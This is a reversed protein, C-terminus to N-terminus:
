CIVIASFIFLIKLIASIFYSSFGISSWRQPDATRDSTMFLLQGSHTWFFELGCTTLQNLLHRRQQLMGSVGVCVGSNFQKCTCVCYYTETNVCQFSLILTVQCEYLASLTFVM